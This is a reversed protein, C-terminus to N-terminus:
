LNIDTGVDQYYSNYARRDQKEPSIPGLSTNIASNRAKNSSLIGTVQICTTVLHQDLVMIWLNVQFRATNAAIYM